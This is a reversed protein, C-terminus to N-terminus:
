GDVEVEYLTCGNVASSPATTLVYLKGDHYLSGRLYGGPDEEDLRLFDLVELTHYDLVAVDKSFQAHVAIREKGIMTVVPETIPMSNKWLHHVQIPRARATLTEYDIEILHEQRVIVFAHLEEIYRGAHLADIDRLFPCEIGTRPDIYTSRFDEPFRSFRRKFAGTHADLAIIMSFNYMYYLTDGFVQINRVACRKDFKEARPDDKDVKGYGRLTHEDIQWLVNLDHDLQSIASHKDGRRGYRHSSTSQAIEWAFDTALLRTTQYEISFEYVQAFYFIGDNFSMDSNTLIYRTDDRTYSPWHWVDLEPHVTILDGNEAVLVYNTMEDKVSYICIDESTFLSDVKGGVDLRVSNWCICCKSAYVVKGDIQHLQDLCDEVTKLLKM